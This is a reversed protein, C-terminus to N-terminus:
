TKGTFGARYPAARFARYSFDLLAALLSTAAEWTAENFNAFEHRSPNAVSDSVSSPYERRFSLQAVVIRLKPNM